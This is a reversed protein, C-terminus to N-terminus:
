HNSLRQACVLFCFVIVYFMHGNRNLLQSFKFKAKRSKMCKNTIMRFISLIIIISHVKQRRKKSGMIEWLQNDIFHDGKKGCMIKGYISCIFIYIYYTSVYISKRPYDFTWHKYIRFLIRFILFFCYHHDTLLILSYINVSLANQTSIM